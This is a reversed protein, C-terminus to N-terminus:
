QYFIVFKLTFYPRWMTHPDCVDVILLVCLIFGVFALYM